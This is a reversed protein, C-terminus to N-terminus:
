RPTPAKLWETLPAYVRKPASGGSIMGIHGLDVTHTQASPIADALHKASQPPVIRDQTPIFALVPCAVRAPDIVTDNVKWLGKATQNEGYWNFLCERALPAALPIGDNLWDELEVFRRAPESAPDLAAFSRFKRGVLTPDLSAFLAQLLDIPACGNAELMVELAPRSMNILVRSAESEAHFDWPAALLALASVLDPRLVAPAVTLTGGMCYGVLRPAQGTRAKIEELAPILVGDVYDESSFQKEGDGPDGWDLLYARMQQAAARMLSRDEALDLIYGRNILSPVFLAPPSDAPGGYDRLTAVGRKWVAPPPTLTRRYSHTQYARVGRIFTEMRSQAEGAVATLFPAADIVSQWAGQFTEPSKTGSAAAVQAALLKAPDPNLLPSVGNSQNLFPSVGNPPMLGSLSMQLIWGEMALHLPLPRPGIRAPLHNM